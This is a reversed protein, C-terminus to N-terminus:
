TPRHRLAIRGAPSVGLFAGSGLLHASKNVNGYSAELTGKPAAIRDSGPPASRCLFPTRLIRRNKTAMDGTCRADGHAPFPPTTERAASSRGAAMRSRALGFPFLMALSGNSRSTRTVSLPAAGASAAVIVGVMVMLMRSQVRIVQRLQVQTLQM